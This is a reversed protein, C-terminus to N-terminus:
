YFRKYLQKILPAMFSSYYPAMNTQINFFPLKHVKGGWMHKQGFV